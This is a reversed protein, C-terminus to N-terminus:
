AANQLSSDEVVLLLVLKSGSLSRRRDSTRQYNNRENGSSGVRQVTRPYYAILQIRSSKVPSKVRVSKKTGM